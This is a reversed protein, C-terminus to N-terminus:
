PTKDSFPIEPLGVTDADVFPYAGAFDPHNVFFTALKSYHLRELGYAHGALPSQIQHFNRGGSIRRDTLNGVVALKEILLALLGV